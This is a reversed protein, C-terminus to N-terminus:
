TRATLRRLRAAEAAEAEIRDLLVNLGYEWTSKRYEPAFYRGIGIISPFDLAAQDGPVPDVASPGRSYGMAEDLGAGAIYYGLARFHRARTEADLGTEELTRVVADIWGLGSRNNKRFIAFYLFFGPHRVAVQRYGGALVLMRERWPLDAAPTQMEAICFDVLSEYLHQKSPFYHYISMAQCNLRRALVRFSFGDLGAEDILALAEITIREASLPQRQPAEPSDDPLPPEKDSQGAGITGPRHRPPSM